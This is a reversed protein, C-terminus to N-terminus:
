VYLVGLTFFIFIITFLNVFSPEKITCVYRTVLFMTTFSPNNDDCSKSINPPVLKLKKGITSFWAIM